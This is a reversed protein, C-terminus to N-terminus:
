GWQLSRTLSQIAGRGESGFASLFIGGLGMKGAMIGVALGLALIL